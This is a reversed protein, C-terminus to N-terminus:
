YSSLSEIIYMTGRNTREDGLVAAYWESGRLRVSTDLAEIVLLGRNGRIATISLLLSIVLPRGARASNVYIPLPFYISEISICESVLRHVAATIVALAILEREVYLTNSIEM